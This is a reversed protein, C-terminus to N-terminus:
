LIQGPDCFNLKCYRTCKNRLSLNLIVIMDRSQLNETLGLVDFFDYNQRLFHQNVGLQSKSIPLRSRRRIDTVNLIKKGNNEKELHTLKMLM